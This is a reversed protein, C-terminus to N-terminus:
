DSNIATVLFLGTHDEISVDKFRSSEFMNTLRERTPIEDHEVAGGVRRHAAALDKSSTLHIIYFRGGPKLVRHTEEIAAAKDSFHAFSGFAVCLDFCHDTFPLRSADCDVVSVNEFPFNRHAKLAMQLAFDVGTISGETGVRRRMMDFLIGTGCGLDLIDSGPEIKIGGVIHSLRELDEAAYHLDWEEALRDFFEQHKDHSM